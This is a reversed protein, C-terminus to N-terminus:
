EKPAHAQHWLKNLADRQQKEELLRARRREKAIGIVEDFDDPKDLLAIQATTLSFINDPHYRPQGSPELFVFAM